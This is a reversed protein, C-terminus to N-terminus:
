PLHRDVSSSAEQVIGIAGSRRALVLWTRCLLCGAIFCFESGTSCADLRHLDKAPNLATFSTENATCPPSDTAMMPGLPAPFLVKNSRSVPLFVGSLPSTCRKPSGTVLCRGQRRTLFPSPRDKWTLLTNGENVASSFTWIPSMSARSREQFTSRRADAVSLDS